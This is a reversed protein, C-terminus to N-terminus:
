LINTFTVNITARPNIPVYTNHNIFPLFCAYPGISLLYPLNTAINASMNM